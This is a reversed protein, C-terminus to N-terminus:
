SFKFVLFCTDKFIDILFPWKQDNEGGTNQKFVLTNKIINILFPLKQDNEGGINLILSMLKSAGYKQSETFLLLEMVPQVKIHALSTKKVGSGREVDKSKM